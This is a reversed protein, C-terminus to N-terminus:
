QALHPGPNRYARSISRFEHLAPLFEPQDAIPGVDGIGLSVGAAKTLCGLAARGASTPGMSSMSVSTSISKTGAVAFGTVCVGHGHRRKLFDDVSRPRGARSFTQPKNVGHPIVLVGLVPGGEAGFPESFNLPPRRLTVRTAHLSGRPLIHLGTDPSLGSKIALTTMPSLASASYAAAV